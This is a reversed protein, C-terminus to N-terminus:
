TGLGYSCSQFDFFILSQMGLLGAGITSGIIKDRKKGKFQLTCFLVNGPFLGPPTKIGPFHVRAYEATNKWNQSWECSGNDPELPGNVEKRFFDLLLRARFDFIGSRHHSKYSKPIGNPMVKAVYTRTMRAFGLVNIKFL